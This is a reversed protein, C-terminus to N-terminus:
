IDYFRGTLDINFYRKIMDQNEYLTTLCIQKEELQPNANWYKHTWYLSLEEPAIAHLVCDSPELDLFNCWKIQKHQLDKVYSQLPYTHMLQILQNCVGKQLNYHDKHPGFDQKYGAITYGHAVLPWLKSFSINICKICDRDVNISYSNSLLLFTLDLTVHVNRADCLDFLENINHAIQLSGRTPLDIILISNKTIQEHTDFVRVDKHYSSLYDQQWYSQAPVWVTKNYNRAVCEIMTRQTHNVVQWNFDQTNCKPAIWDSLADGLKKNDNWTYNNPPVEFDKNLVSRDEAFINNAFNLVGTFDPDFISWVSEGKPAKGYSQASSILIASERLFELRNM